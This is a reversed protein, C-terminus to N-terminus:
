PHWTVAGAPTGNFTSTPVGCPTAANPDRYYAMYYRSEGASIADGLAASRASVRPDGPSPRTISGASASGSYLRKLDGAICRVGAGFSVGAAVPNKGQLFVTLATANEGSATFVLEDRSLSAAGTAALTAGGSAAGFNDCGRGSGAPPNGCPCDRVGAEGPFCFAAMAPTPPRNLLITLERHSTSCTAVDPRGDGDLDGVAVGTPTGGIGDYTRPLFAGGGAGFHVSAVNASSTVIADLKGDGNLDALALASPYGATPYTSPALLGGSGDGLRVSLQGTGREAVVVDAIGDGNLDAMAVAIPSFGTAYTTPSLLGGSGNGLRVTLTNASTNASVLDPKGDGNLDGLAVASPSGGVAYITQPLFGGAGDGLLVSVDNTFHNAVVADLRGDGNLDGLAVWRPDGRVPYSGAAVFAGNGTGFLIRLNGPPGQETYSSVVIADLAGDGNLDRLAVCTPYGDVPYTTEALLGGAGDALRVSIRNRYNAVVADDSGDGNLDGLAVGVPEEFVPYSAPIRFGGNGDGLVVFVANAYSFTPMALDPVGDGNLDGLALDAMGAAGFADFRVPAFNGAGDGLLVSVDAVEGGAFAVIDPKGDGNLDTTALHPSYGQIALGLTSTVGGAGDGFSVYVTPSDTLGHIVDLHGDSNLDALALGAANSSSGLNTPASLNGAGDGLLVQVACGTGSVVLDLNGDENMDGAAMDGAALLTGCDFQFSQVAFGGASDGRLLIVRSPISVAADLIGDRDFDGFVLPGATTGGLPSAVPALLGGSGDGLRVEIHCASMSDRDVWAADLKGDGNLDAIVPGSVLSDIPYSPGSAFGGYGDGRLVTVTSALDDLVVADLFGDGDMDGLAVALHSTSWRGDPGQPYGSEPFLPPGNQAFSAAALLMTGSSELVLKPLVSM